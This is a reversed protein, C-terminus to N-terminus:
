RGERIKWIETRDNRNERGMQVPASTTWSISRRANEELLAPPVIARKSPRKLPMIILKGSRGRWRIRMNAPLGIMQLGKVTGHLWERGGRWAEGGSPLSVWEYPRCRGVFQIERKGAPQRIAKWCVFWKARVLFFLIDRLYRPVTKGAPDLKVTYYAAAIPGVVMTITCDMPLAWSLLPFVYCFFFFVGIYVFWLVIGDQRIPMWLRIDGINYILPRVRYLARYSETKDEDM